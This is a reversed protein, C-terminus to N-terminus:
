HHIKEKMVIEKTDIKDFNEIIQSMEGHLSNDTDSSSIINTPNFNHGDTSTSQLNLETQHNETTKTIFAKLRELVQNITPRNNPEIDWCETYINIYNEPTNPIPEERRGQSIELALDIDYEETVFPPLGSSIEWFLVGVSYIDSKENFSCTQNSNKNKKRGSFRKPDVYPICGFFKTKTNSSSEIRKSM